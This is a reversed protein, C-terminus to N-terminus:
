LSFAPRLSFSKNEFYTRLASLRGNERPLARYIQEWSLRTVRAPSDPLLFAELWREIPTPDKERGLSVVHAREDGSRILNAFVANRLLQEPFQKHTAQALQEVDFVSPAHDPYLALWEKLKDASASTKIGHAFKAEFFIWGWDHIYLCADPETQQSHAPEVLDRIGQLEDWSSSPGDQDIRRGWLFLDPERTPSRGTVL